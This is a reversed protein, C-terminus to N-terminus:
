FEYIDVEVENEVESEVDAQAEIEFKNYIEIDENIAEFSVVLAYKANHEGKRDWGKHGVVGICFEDPLEYAPVITWDKQSASRNRNIGKIKGHNDQSGITWSFGEGSRTDAEQDDEESQIIRDVFDDLKEDSKSTIWDVWTSFYGKFNKRTRRPKSSFTLTVDIRIQSNLGKLNSPVKVRYVHINSGSIFREGTTIFTVRYDNNTTACEVNPLGYGMYKLVNSKEENPLNEAWETWRASQIILAKYLLSSEDPFVKELKAAISTVKPASFSTGLGDKSFAPGEPSRRILETSTEEKTIFTNNNHKSRVYDGGFEVVEPKISNWIGCGSRSFSSISGEKGFSKLDIDEYEGDCIAGVTLAQMSQAPNAIRSVNQLLYEPYERGADLHQQIGINRPNNSSHKINGASQIFLVDREFAAFDITAAWSSMYKTRCPTTSSISHNFLRISHNVNYHEIIESTLKSPLLKTPMINDKDLVRANAIFCPLNHNDEINSIGKSYLIAGAVRTGHGDQEVEDSVIQSNPLYCRSLESRISKCLYAHEEQIGSDIVCVTPSNDEPKNITIPLSNEMGLSAKLLGMDIEDPLTIEFIYPYNNAFDILGSISIKFKIDFSDLKTLDEPYDYIDVVIGNYDTIFKEIQEQREMCLEDWAMYAENVKKQWKEHAREYNVYQSKDKMPSPPTITGLCEISAEITISDSKNEKLMINEWISFLDDSLIRKLRQEKTEEVILNYIKAINGTRYNETAFGEIKSMNKKFTEPNSAVIVFGDEYECVIECGLTTRLFDLDIEKEPIEILMARDSPLTPLGERIIDEDNWRNIQELARGFLFNSHEIRNSRNRKVREPTPPTFLKKGNRKYRTRGREKLVLELHQFNKESM